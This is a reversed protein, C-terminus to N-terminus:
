VPSISEPLSFFFASPSRAQRHHAPGARRRARSGWAMGLMRLGEACAIPSRSSRRSARSRRWCGSRGVAFAGVNSLAAEYVRIREEIDGRNRRRARRGPRKAARRGWLRAACSSSDRRTSASEREARELQRRAENEWEPLEDRNVGGSSLGYRRNWLQKLDALQQLRQSLVTFHLQITQRAESSEGMAAPAMMQRRVKDLAQTVEFEENELKVIQDRLEKATLHVERSVLELQERLLTTRLAHVDRNLKENAFELERLRTEEAAVQSAVKALHLDSELGDKRGADRNIELAEQAARRTREAADFTQQAQDRAEGAFNVGADLTALRTSEADFEDQLHDLLLFSFPREGAM